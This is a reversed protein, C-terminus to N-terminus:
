SGSRCPWRRCSGRRNAPRAGPCGRARSGSASTSIRGSQRSRPRPAPCAAYHGPACSGGCRCPRRRHTPPAVRRGPMAGRWAVVVPKRRLAPDDRQEVSAYFA